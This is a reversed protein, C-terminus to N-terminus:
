KDADIRRRMEAAVAGPDDAQTIAGGVVVIEPKEQLIGDISGLDIGGAVSLPTGVESSLLRLEELPTKGKNQQDIGSHVGLYDVGLGDLFRARELINKTGILDVIVMKRNNRASELASYITEDDAVALVSVMDAGEAFCFDAEYKGVDMTKTDVFVMKNPYQKRITKLAGIGQYKLFPTGIEIIDIYEGTRGLVDIAEDIDLMDLALQLKTTNKM